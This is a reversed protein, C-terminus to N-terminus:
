TTYKVYYQPYAKNKAYVIYIMSDHTFGEISDYGQPPTKINKDEDM